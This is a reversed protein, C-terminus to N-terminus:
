MDKKFKNRYIIYSLHGIENQQLYINLKIFLCHIEASIISLSDNEGQMNRVYKENCIGKNFIVKSYIHPNTEPIRIRKWQDLQIAKHIYM